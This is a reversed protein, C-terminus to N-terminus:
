NGDINAEFQRHSVRSYSNFFLVHVLQKLVEALEGFGLFLVLRANAESQCDTPVQDMRKSTYNLHFTFKVLSSVKDYCQLRIALNWKSFVRLGEASLYVKLRILGMIHM